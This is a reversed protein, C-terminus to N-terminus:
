YMAASQIESLATILVAMPSPFKPGLTPTSIKGSGALAARAASPATM